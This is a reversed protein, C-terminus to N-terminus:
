KFATAQLRQIVQMDFLFAIVELVSPLVRDNDVNVKLLSVLCNALSRLTFQTEDMTNDDPLTDIFDLLAVRSNQVVSETGMGASSVFGTCISERITPNTNSQLSRLTNFFYDRSSVDDVVAMSADGRELVQSAKVRMKDLKELSLRLVNAYIKRGWDDDDSGTLIGTSWTLRVTNLAELRVLSGVDGRETITYDNLAIHLASGIQAEVDQALHDSRSAKSSLLIGLARLSVTRAEIAVAATCRFTLIKVIRRQLDLSTTKDIGNSLNGHAAGLAIAHGSCRLGNYSAEKELLALWASVVDTANASHIESLMLVIAPTANAIAGLVSEEHRTLCLNLLRVIEAAPVDSLRHDGSFAVTLDAMAGIFTCISAATFEPRMAPSTFAKDELKLENTLLTWLRLLVVSTKQDDSSPPARAVGVLAALASVLGQREEVERPRLTALKGRVQDSMQQIVNSPRAISLSGIAQAAFLRSDSDLSGTGRWELLNEFLAEWYLPQLEGAKIAVDCMARQRLGVAHFDVIQVLPIGEEITNPHRGILEQLAASSGRRINGAPDLCAAVVLEIALVQPVHLSKRHESARISATEVALLDATSYRRSLAWIGFCAADRVNTGISGGTPSRQEFSLSLLLANLVDSLHDTSIAKRYLLQALTLTLGHWRLPNVSNVNRKPGQWYVNETLSGLIAEVVEGAMEPDLKLTVISLAKSAGYRVPTDGDALAELLFEIVEELVSTPDLGSPASTAQLCHLVINRLSKVVLKRAVASSRVFALNEQEIIKRCSQYTAALFPGLEENTASALLGSLFALVGLCQHIDSQDESISSFFSLSWQVMTDLLGLKQMDPRVCTRVLLNAAASREKTASQLRAICVTLVRLTIGPVEAPLKIGLAASTDASSELGSMSELPFPALLLHSLWLLLVYREIWPSTSQQQLADDGATKSKDSTELERLIPELYRPENNFFGKIVKEGRVKCFINLIYCIAYPLPVFGKKPEERPQV